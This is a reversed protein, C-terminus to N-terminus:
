NHIAWMPSHIIERADLSLITEESANIFYGPLFSSIEANFLQSDQFKIYKADLSEIDIFQRVLLGLRKGENHLVMVMMKALSAAQYLPPYGLMEETDILWLMEGRWNYIGLVCSPMQPVSCIEGWSVPFVEVIHQLAVVGINKESLHFSLFKQETEM